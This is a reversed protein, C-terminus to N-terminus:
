RPSNPRAERLAHRAPKYEIERTGASRLSSMQASLWANRTEEFKQGRMRVENQWHIKQDHKIWDKFRQVASGAEDIVACAKERYAVLEGRFTEIAEISTIHANQPM